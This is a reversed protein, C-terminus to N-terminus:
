PSKGLYHRLAEISKRFYDRSTSFYHCQKHEFLFKIIKLVLEFTIIKILLTKMIFHM